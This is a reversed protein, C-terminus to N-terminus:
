SCWERELFDDLTQGPKSTFHKDLMAVNEMRDLRFHRFDDRLLCWAVLTWVKGWYFLGLPHVTRLSKEKDERTYNFLIKFQQKTAQRLVTLQGTVKEDTPINPIIINQQELEPKLREPIVSEIKQLAHSAARALSQDTWAQVMQAGIFLAALEEENFMLPPLQYGKMLRYGSGTESSIPVGSASLDQIDRYITRESVELFNALDYATIVKDHHLHQIIQFLRDARRM